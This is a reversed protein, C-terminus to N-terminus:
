TLSNNGSMWVTIQAIHEEEFRLLTLNDMEEYSGDANTRKVALRIALHSSPEDPIFQFDGHWSEKVAEARNIYSKRVADLGDKRVGHTPVELIVDDTLHSLISVLNFADVDAFYAKAREMM